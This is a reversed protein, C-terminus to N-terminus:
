KRGRPTAPSTIPTAFVYPAKTAEETAVRSPRRTPSPQLPRTPASTSFVTPPIATNTATPKPPSTAVVQIVIIEQIKPEDVAQTEVPTASIAVNFFLCLILLLAADLLIFVLGFNLNRM